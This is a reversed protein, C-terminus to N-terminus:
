KVVLRVKSQSRILGGMWMTCLILCTVRVFAFSSRFYCVFHWSLQKTNSNYDANIVVGTGNNGDGAFADGIRRTFSQAMVRTLGFLSGYTINNIIVTNNPWQYGYLPQTPHNIYALAIDTFNVFDGWDPGNPHKLFGNLTKKVVPINTNFMSSSSIADGIRALSSVMKMVAEALGPTLGIDVGFTPAKGDFLKADHITVIVGIV